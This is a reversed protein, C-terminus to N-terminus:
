GLAELLLDGEEPSIRGEAIMRLITEREQERSASPAPASAPEASAAAPAEVEIRVTQGTAPTPPVPPVPPVPPAGPVPPVPPVRVRGLAREVAEVAGALGEAAARRAQEKIRELREPDLQWERENIRVHLRGSVRRDGEHELRRAREELKRAQEELKRAAKDGWAAGTSVGEKALAAAIEDGIERGLKGLERGLEGMEQGFAGWDHGFEDAYGPGESASSSPRGGGLRLDGGVTLNLSAEGNGYRLTVRKRGREGAGAGRVEGGVMAALTLNPEGIFSISADGSV